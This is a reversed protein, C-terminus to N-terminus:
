QILNAIHRVSTECYQPYCDLGLHYIMDLVFRMRDKHPYTDKMADAMAEVNLETSLWDDAVDENKCYGFDVLLGVFTDYHRHVEYIWDSEALKNM